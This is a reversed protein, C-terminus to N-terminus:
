WPLEVETGIPLWVIISHQVVDPRTAQDGKTVPHCAAKTGDSAVGKCYKKGELTFISGCAIQQLISNM